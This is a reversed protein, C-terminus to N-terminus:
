WESILTHRLSQRDWGIKEYRGDWATSDGCLPVNGGKSRKLGEITKLWVSVILKWRDKSSYDGEFKNRNGMKTTTLTEGFHCFWGVRLEVPFADVCNTTQCDIHWSFCVRTMGTCWHSHRGDGVDEEVFEHFEIRFIGMPQIPVTKNERIGWFKHRESSLFPCAHQKCYIRRWKNPYSNPMSWNCRNLCNPLRVGPCGSAFWPVGPISTVM